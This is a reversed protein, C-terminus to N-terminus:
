NLNNGSINQKNMFSFVIKLTIFYTLTKVQLFRALLYPRMETQFYFITVTRFFHLNVHSIFRQQPFVPVTRFLSLESVRDEYLLGGHCMLRHVGNKIPPPSISIKPQVRPLANLYGLFPICKPLLM